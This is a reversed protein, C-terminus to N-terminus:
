VCVPSRSGDSGVSLWECGVGGVGCGLGGGGGVGVGGESGVEMKSGKAGEVGAGGVEFGM